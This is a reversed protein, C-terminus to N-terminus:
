VASSIQNSFITPFALFLRFRVTPEMMHGSALSFNTVRSLVRDFIADGFRYPLGDKFVIQQRRESTPQLPMSQTKTLFYMYEAEEKSVLNDVHFIKPKM